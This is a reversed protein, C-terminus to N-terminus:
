FTGDQAFLYQVRQESRPPRNAWPVLLMAHIEFLAPLTFESMQGPRRVTISVGPDVASLMGSTPCDSTTCRVAVFDRLSGNAFHLLEGSRLCSCLPRSLAPSSTQTHPSLCCWDQCHKCRGPALGAAAEAQAYPVISQAVAALLLFLGIFGSPEVLLAQCRLCVM